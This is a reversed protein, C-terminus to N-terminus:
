KSAANGDKKKDARPKRAAKRAEHEKAEEETRDPLKWIRSGLVVAKDEESADQQRATKDMFATWLKSTFQWYKLRHAAEKKQEDTSAPNALQREYHEWLNQVAYMQKPQTKYETFLKSQGPRLKELIRWSQNEASARGPRSRDPPPIFNDVEVGDILETLPIDPKVPSTTEM